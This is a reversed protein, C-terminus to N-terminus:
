GKRMTHTFTYRCCSGAVRAVRAERYTAQTHPTSTHEAGTDTHRVHVQVMVGCVGACGCVWVFVGCVWVGVCVCVCGCVWVCVSVGVCVGVCISGAGRCVMKWEKGFHTNYYSVSLIRSSVGGFCCIVAFGHPWQGQFTCLYVGLRLSIDNKDDNSM